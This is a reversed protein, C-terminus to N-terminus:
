EEKPEGTQTMKLIQGGTRGANVGEDGIVQTAKKWLKSTEKLM